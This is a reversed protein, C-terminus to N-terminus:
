KLLERMQKEVKGVYAKDLLRIHRKSDNIDSENDYCSVAEWYPVEVSPIPQSLTTETTTSTSTDSDIGTITTSALSGVVKDVILLTSNSISTITASNSGSTIREGLVFSATNAVVISVTKNTELFLDQEKRVYSMVTGTQNYVPTFYKKLSGTLANYTSPSLITDDSAYNVRFHSIKSQAENQSGYKSKIYEEFQTPALPWDYYPDVIDNALYIIWDYTPQGYYRDAIQDPREGQEVTYPYYTALSDKITQEFAVKAIINTAINNSYSVSPFFNFFGAM